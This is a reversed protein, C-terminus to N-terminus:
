QWKKKWIQFQQRCFRLKSYDLIQRKPFLLVVSDLRPITKLKIGHRGARAVHTSVTQLYM